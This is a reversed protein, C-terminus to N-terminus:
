ETGKLALPKREGFLPLAFNRDYSHYAIFRGDRSWDDLLKREQDAYLVTSAHTSVNVERIEGGGALAAGVAVRRSDPSWVPDLAIVSAEHTLMSAGGTAADIVRVGRKGGGIGEVGGRREDPSLAIKSFRAPEGITALRNGSRDFWVLTALPIPTRPVY